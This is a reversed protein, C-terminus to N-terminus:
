SAAQEFPRSMRVQSRAIHDIMAAVTADPDRRRLAALIARHESTTIGRLEPDEVLRYLQLHSHLRGLTERLYKNGSMRAITDHFNSDETPLVRYEEYVRGIEAREIALIQQELVDLDEDTAAEAAKRAAVPELLSRMEYLQLFSPLDLLPTATYGRLPEKSVLGDSELRALAERIPTPSVALERALQDINIRSGPEIRHDMLLGKVTEYVTDTLIQRQPVRVGRSGLVLSMDRLEQGEIGVLCMALVNVRNSPWRGFELRRCRTSSKGVSEGRELRGYLIYGKL